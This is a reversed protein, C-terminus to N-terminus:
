LYHIHIINEPQLCPSRSLDDRIELVPPQPHVIHIEASSEAYVILIRVATRHGRELLPDPSDSHIERTPFALPKMQLWAARDNGLAPRKDGPHKKYLAPFGLIEQDARYPAYWLISFREACKRFDKESICAYSTTPGTHSDLSTHPCPLSRGILTRPSRIAMLLAPAYPWTIALLYLRLSKAGATNESSM